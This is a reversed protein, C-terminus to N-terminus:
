ELVAEWQEDTLPQLQITVRYPTSRSGQVSAQIHGKTEKISLVQGSRAYSRGRRLRGADTIRELSKIWREAWWHEAFEGRQSRAQIGEDTKRPKSPQYRNDYYM